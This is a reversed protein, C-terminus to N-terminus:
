GPRARQDQLQRALQRNADTVDAVENALNVCAFVLIGSLSALLVIMVISIVLLLKLDSRCM